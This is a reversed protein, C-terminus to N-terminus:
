VTPEGDTYPTNGYGRNKLSSVIRDLIWRFFSRFRESGGYREVMRPSLAYYTRVFLRGMVHRRLFCDRFRRLVRVEPCDYSGYVCTAVYCGESGSQSTGSRSATSVPADKPDGDGYGMQAQPNGSSHTFGGFVTPDSTGVKRGRSDYNVYGGFAMPDSRGTRRGNSDYHVYGGLASPDSYGIRKGKEDYETFGGFANPVSRGTKRGKSDYHVYGGFMDKDSRSRGM